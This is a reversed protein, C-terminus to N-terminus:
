IIQKVDYLLKCLLKLINDLLKLIDLNFKVVYAYKLTCIYFYHEINQKNM